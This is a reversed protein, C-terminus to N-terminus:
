FIYEKVVRYYTPDRPVLVHFAPYAGGTSLEQTRWQQSPFNDQFLPSIAKAGRHYLKERKQGPIGVSRVSAPRTDRTKLHRSKRPQRRRHRAISGAQAGRGGGALLFM